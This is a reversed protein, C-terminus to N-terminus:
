VLYYKMGDFDPFIADPSPRLLRISNVIEVTRDRRAVFKLLCDRREIPVTAELPREDAGHITFAGNQAALRDFLFNPAVPLPLKSVHKQSNAWDDQFAFDANAQIKLDTAIPINSGDETLAALAFPDLAWIAPKADQWNAEGISFYLAVALSETWDLLRTPIGYHQMACLWDFQSSINQFKATARRRFEIALYGERKKIDESRFLTPLLTYSNQSCGRFWCTDWGITKLTILTCLDDISAFEIEPYQGAM